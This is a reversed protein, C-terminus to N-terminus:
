LAEIAEIRQRRLADVLWAQFDFDAGGADLAEALSAGALLADTCRREGVDVARVEVRWGRRAVVVSEGRGDAYARRVADFRDAADSRHAQWITAVPHGSVLTATGPALRLALRQPDDRGLRELGQLTLADAAGAARHVIWELRAVDVLCPEDALSEAGAIFDALEGGWRAVDGDRPPRQRWHDRALAAFSDAGILQQLTPYVAALAREALAGANARYAAHGREFRPGDRMWRALAAPADDGLLSRLLVQQRLAEREPGSM